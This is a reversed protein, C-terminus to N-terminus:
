KGFRLSKRFYIQGDIPLKNNEGDLFEDNVQPMLQTGVNLGLEMTPTLSFSYGFTPRIGFRRLGDMYGYVNRDENIELVDLGYSAEKQSIRVKSSM